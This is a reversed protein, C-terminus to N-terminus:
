TTYSERTEGSENHTLLISSRSYKTVFFILFFTKKLNLIWIVNM